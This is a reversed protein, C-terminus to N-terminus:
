VLFQFSFFDTNSNGGFTLCTEGISMFDCKRNIWCTVIQLRNSSDCMVMMQKLSLGEAAIGVDENVVGLMNNGKTINLHM